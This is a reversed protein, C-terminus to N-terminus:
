RSLAQPRRGGGAKELFVRSLLKNTGRAAGEVLGSLVARGADRGRSDEIDALQDLTLAPRHRHRDAPALKALIGRLASIRPSLPCRDGEIIRKFETTLAATKDDSLDLHM